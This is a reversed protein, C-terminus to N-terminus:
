ADEGTTLATELAAALDRISATGVNETFLSIVYNRGNPLSVIATDHWEKLENWGVKNYVTASSMGSPLGRRYRDEQTKMSDLMNVTLEEPLDRREHLRILLTTADQATTTINTMSTNTIGYTKLKETTEQKGLEAWLKEGCPSDSTRLMADLCEGRTRGNLYPEDLGYAGNAAALYGEYAVYLKYISAAFYSQDPQHSAITQQNELDYVVISYNGTQKAGWADVVPQVNILPPKDEPPKEETKEETQQLSSEEIVPSAAKEPQLLLYAAVALLATLIVILGITLKHRHM